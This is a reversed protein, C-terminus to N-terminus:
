KFKTLESLAQWDQESLVQRLLAKCHALMAEPTTAQDALAQVQQLLAQLRLDPQGPAQAPAIGARRLLEALLPSTPQRGGQLQGVLEALLTDFSPTPTDDVGVTPQDGAGEAQSALADADFLAGRLDAGALMAGDLLAGRFDAHHFVGGTLNAGRLDAGRFDADEFRVGVLRAGALDAGRFVVGDGSAGDLLAERLLARDLRTESLGADRLNVGPLHAGVASCDELRAGEFSAGAAQAGDLVCARWTAGASDLALLQAGALRCDHLRANCLRAGCLNARSLDLREGSLGSLDLGALLTDQLALGVARRRQEVFPALLAWGDVRSASTAAGPAAAAPVPVPVLVLVLADAADGDETDAMVPGPGVRFRGLRRGDPESAEVLSGPQLSGAGQEALYAIAAQVGKIALERQARAARCALEPLGLYAMGHTRAQVQDGGRAAVEIRVLLNLQGAQGDLGPLLPALAASGLLKRAAPLVIAVAGLALCRRLLEIAMRGGDASDEPAAGDLRWCMVWGSGAAAREQPSLVQTWGPKPALWAAATAAPSATAGHLAKRLGDLAADPMPGFLAALLLPPVEALRALSPSQPSVTVISERCPGGPM